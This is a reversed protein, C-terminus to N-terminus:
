FVTKLEVAKDTVKLRVRAGVTLSLNEDVHGIPFNFVIPIKKFPIARELFRSIMEEMSNFNKDPKYETFKGFILGKARQFTGALQLRWLMREVAYIPESIDEFFLIYDSAMHPDLLDYPTNALDNLVALNGGLLRGESEGLRNIPSPPLLYDFRGGSELVNFLAMTSPDDAPMTALHKAMPGHISAVDSFYWMALLASVDSFGIIWKPHSAILNYSFHALLQCCGYGGRNCFIAKIDSDALADMLDMLRNSKSAAFSGDAQDLAHPMLVPEYGRDYFRTMAGLVYEEKVSSAPSLFAVKDGRQLPQPYFLSKHRVMMFSDDFSNKLSELGSDESDCDDSNDFDSFDDIDM